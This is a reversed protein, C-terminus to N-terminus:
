VQDGLYGHIIGLHSKLTGKQSFKKNCLWCEFSKRGGCEYRVHNVYSGKSKYIRNCSKNPCVFMNGKETSVKGPFLDFNTFVILLSYVHINVILSFM